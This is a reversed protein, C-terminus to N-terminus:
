LQVQLSYDEYVGKIINLDLEKPFSNFSSYSNGKEIIKLYILCDQKKVIYFISRIFYPKLIKIQFQM